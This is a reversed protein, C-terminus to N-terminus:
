NDKCKHDRAHILGIGVIVFLTPQPMTYVLNFYITQGHVWLIHALWLGWIIALIGFATTRWSTKKMKILHM